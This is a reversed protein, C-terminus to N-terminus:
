GLGTLPDAWAPPGQLRWRPSTTPPPTLAAHAVLLTPEPDALQAALAEAFADGLGDVSQARIGFSEALMAFDPTV